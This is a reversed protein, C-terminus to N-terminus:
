PLFMLVIRGEWERRSSRLGFADEEVIWYLEETAGGVAMSLESELPQPIAM